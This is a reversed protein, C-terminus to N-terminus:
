SPNRNCAYILMHCFNAIDAAESKMDTTNESHLLEEVEEVIRTLCYDVTCSDWGKKNKNAYLKRLQERNGEYILQQYDRVQVEM